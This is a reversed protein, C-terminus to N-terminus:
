PVADEVDASPKSHPTRGVPYNRRVGITLIRGCVQMDPSFVAGRPAHKLIARSLGSNGYTDIPKSPAQEQLLHISRAHGDARRPGGAWISCISSPSTTACQTM